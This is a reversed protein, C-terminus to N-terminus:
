SYKPRASAQGENDVPCIQVVKVPGYFLTGLPRRQKVIDIPGPCDAECREFDAIDSRTMVNSGNVLLINM